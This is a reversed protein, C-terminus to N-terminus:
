LEALLTKYYAAKEGDKKYHYCNILQTLVQRCREKNSPDIGEKLFNRYTRLSINLLEDYKQALRAQLNKKKQLAGASEDDIEAIADEVDYLQNLVHQSMIYHVRAHNSDQKVLRGLLQGLKEQRSQYDAPKQRDYVYNFLETAYSSGLMFSGPYKQVMYEFRALREKQERPNGLELKIWYDEDQFVQRGTSLYRAAKVADQRGHFYQYLLTYVAKYEEGTMRWGALREFYSIAEEERGSLYASFATLSILQTDTAPLLKGNFAFQKKVIYNETELAAKFYGYALSYEQREYFELGRNLGLDFLHFLGVNNDPKMLANSPDLEQYKKYSSLSELLLETRLSDQRRVSQACALGRYYWLAPVQRHVQLQLLSDTLYRASEHDNAAILKQVDQVPQAFANMSILVSFLLLLKPQKM